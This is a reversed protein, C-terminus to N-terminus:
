QDERRLRDIEQEGKRQLEEDSMNTTNSHKFLTCSVVMEATNSDQKGKDELITKNICDRLDVARRRFDEMEKPDKISDASGVASMVGLFDAATALQNEPTAKSWELGSSKQLTGGDYWERGAAFAAEQLAMLAVVVCAVKIMLAKRLAKM